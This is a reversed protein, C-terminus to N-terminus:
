RRVKDCSASVSLADHSRQFLANEREMLFLRFSNEKRSKAHM